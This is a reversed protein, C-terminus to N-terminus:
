KAKILLTLVVKAGTNLGYVNLVKLAPTGNLRVTEWHLSPFWDLTGSQVVCREVTIGYPTKGSLLPLAQVGIPVSEQSSAGGEVTLDLWCMALNESPTLNGSLADTVRQIFTNLPSLLGDVWDPAGPLAKRLIARIGPAVAM